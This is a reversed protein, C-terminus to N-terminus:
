FHRVKRNLRGFLYVMLYRMLSPYMRINFFVNDMYVCGQTCWCNKAKIFKRMEETKLSRWLRSFDFAYDRINGVSDLLECFFVNGDAGIVAVSNGALCPICSKNEKIMKLYFDLLLTHAANAIIREPLSINSDYNYRNWADLLLQKKQELQELSPLYLDPNRPNGRLFIITHFSIGKMKYYVFDIIRELNDFNKNSIVTTVKTSLHKFRKKLHILADYSELAKDFSGNVGRIEDQRRGLDDLALDIAIPIRIRRLIETGIKIVREPNFGATPISILSPHNNQAFLECIDPLDDRLFPEGGSIHLWIIKSLSRSLKEFEKLSMDAKGVNLNKWNFCTQCNLNCKYTIHLIIHVPLKFRGAIAQKLVRFFM